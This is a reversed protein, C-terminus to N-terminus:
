GWPGPAPPPAGAPPVQLSLPLALSPPTPHQGPLRCRLPGSDRQDRLQGWHVSPAWPGSLCYPPDQAADATVTRRRGAGLGAAARRTSAWSLPPGPGPLRGEPDGETVMHLLAMRRRPSGRTLIKKRPSPFNSSAGDPISSESGRPRAMPVLAPHGWLRGEATWRRGAKRAWRWGQGGWGGTHAGQVPDKPVIKAARYRSQACESTM